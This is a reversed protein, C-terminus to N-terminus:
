CLKLEGVVFQLNNTAFIETIALFLKQREEPTMTGDKDPQKRV